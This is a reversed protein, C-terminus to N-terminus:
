WQRVRRLPAATPWGARSQPLGGVLDSTVRYAPTKSKAADTEEIPEIRVVVVHGLGQWYEAIRRAITEAGRRSLTHPGLQWATQALRRRRLLRQERSRRGSLDNVDAPSTQM